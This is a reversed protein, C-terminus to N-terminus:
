NAIQLQRDCENNICYDDFYSSERTIIVSKVKYVITFLLSFVFYEYIYKCLYKYNLFLNTIIFRDRLKIAIGDFFILQFSELICDLM